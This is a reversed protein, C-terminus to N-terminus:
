QQNREKTELQVFNNTKRLRSLMLLGEAQQSQQQQSQSNNTTSNSGTSLYLPLAVFMLIWYFSDIIGSPLYIDIYIKGSMRRQAISQKKQAEEREKKNDLHARELMINFNYLIKFLEEPNEVVGDQGYYDVVEKFVAQM